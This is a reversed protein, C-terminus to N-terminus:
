SFCFFIRYRKRSQPFINKYIGEKHDCSREMEVADSLSVIGSRFRQIGLCGNSRGLRQTFRHIRQSNAMVSFGQKLELPSTPMLCFAFILLCACVCSQKDLLIELILKM